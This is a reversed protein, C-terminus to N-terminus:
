FISCSSNSEPEEEDKSKVPSCFGCSITKSEREIVVEGQALARQDLKLASSKGKQNADNEDHWYADDFDHYVTELDEHEAEAAKEEEQERVEPFQLM